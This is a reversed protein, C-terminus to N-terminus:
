TGAMLGAVGSWVLRLALVTLIATFAVQFTREEIRMLIRGGAVTGAFGAAIMAAVLPLYGAFAFGFLGFVAVKLAHQITMLAAHTAVQEQRTPKLLKVLSAVFPGTGGFFMTLASSVLGGVPMALRGFGPMPLYLSWLVFGGVGAQIAAAPLSVVVAGGALAGVAGGLAFPLLADRIVHARLMLCRGANSGLQVVGHVPIIAAAPLLLAMVSLMAIGGGIGFAATILSTLFSIGVLALGVTASLGDPLLSTLTEIVTWAGEDVDRTKGWDDDGPKGRPGV